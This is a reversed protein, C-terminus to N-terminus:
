KLVKGTEMYWLYLDLEALSMSARDALAALISEIELYRKKGMYTPKKILGRRYLLDIIHFDVIAIDKFGVNRLFHSAEKYGMGKINAVLWERAFSSNPASNLTHRLLSRYPRALVIYRARANPYRHGLERLREALQQEPLFLFQNHLARQIRISREANFNATLLCFCLEEFLLEDPANRLREFEKLRTSVKKGVHSHKLSELKILLDAMAHDGKFFGFTRGQM